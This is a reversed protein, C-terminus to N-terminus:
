ALLPDLSLRRGESPLPGLRKRVQAAPKRELDLLEALTEVGARLGALELLCLLLDATVEADGLARHPARNRLGFHCTLRELGLRRLEPLVRKALRRTCLVTRGLPPLGALNLARGIFNADFSANHAVLPALPFRGIWHLFEPLVDGLLPAGAVMADDIGTLGRVLPPISVKPNVLRAFSERPRAGGVRVAAIEVIACTRPSLGTTELDVVVFESDCLRLRAQYLGRSERNGSGPWLLLSADLCAPDVPDPVEGADAGALAALLARAITPPPAARLALLQQVLLSLAVPRGQARLAALTREIASDCPLARVPGNALKV